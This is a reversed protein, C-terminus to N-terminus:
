LLDYDGIKTVDEKPADPAKPPNEDEKENENKVTTVMPLTIGESLPKKLESDKDNKKEKKKEPEKEKQKEEKKTDQKAEKPTDATDTSSQQTIPRVEDFDMDFAKAVEEGDLGGLNKDSISKVPKLYSSRANMEIASFLDNQFAKNEKESTAVSDFLPGGVQYKSRQKKLRAKKSCCCLYCCRCICLMIVCLFLAAGGVIAWHFMSYTTPDLWQAPTADVTIMRADTQISLVEASTNEEIDTTLDGKFDDDTGVTKEVAQAEKKTETILTMTWTITFEGEDSTESDIDVETVGVGDHHATITDKIIDTLQPIDVNEDTSLTVTIEIEIEFANEEDIPIGSTYLETTLFGTTITPETINTINTVATTQMTNFSLLLISLTCLRLLFRNSDM